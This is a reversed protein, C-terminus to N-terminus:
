NLAAYWVVAAIFSLLIIALSSMAKNHIQARMKKDKEKDETDEYARLLNNAKSFGIGAFVWALIPILLGLLGIANYTSISNLEQRIEKQDM